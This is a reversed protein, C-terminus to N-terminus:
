ALFNTILSLTGILIILESFNLRLSSKYEPTVKKPGLTSLEVPKTYSNLMWSYGSAIELQTLADVIFIVVFPWSVFKPTPAQAL